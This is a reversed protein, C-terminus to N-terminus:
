GVLRVPGPESQGYAALDDLRVATADPDLAIDVRARGKGEGYREHWRSFSRLGHRM